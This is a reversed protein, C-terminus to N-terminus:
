DVLAKDSYHGISSCHKEVAGILVVSESYVEYSIKEILAISNEEVIFDLKMEFEVLVAM